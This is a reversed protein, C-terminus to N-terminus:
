AGKMVKMANSDIMARIAHKKLLALVGQIYQLTKAHLITLRTRSQNVCPCLDRIITRWDVGGGLPAKSSGELVEGEGSGVDGIYDLLYAEV